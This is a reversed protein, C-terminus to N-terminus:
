PVFLSIKGLNETQDSAIGTNAHLGRFFLTWIRPSLFDNLERFFRTLVRASFINLRLTTLASVYMSIGM